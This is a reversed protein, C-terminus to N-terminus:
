GAPSDPAWFFGRCRISRFSISPLPHPRSVPIQVAPVHLLPLSYWQTTCLLSRPRLPNKLIVACPRRYGRSYCSVNSGVPATVAGRKICCGQWPEIGEPSLFPSKVASFIVKLRGFYRCGAIPYKRIFVAQPVVARAQMEM